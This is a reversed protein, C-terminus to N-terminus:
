SGAEADSSTHGGYVDVRDCAAHSVAEQERHERDATERRDGARGGGLDAVGRRGEDLSELPLTSVDSHTRPRLSDSNLSSSLNLDNDENLSSLEM